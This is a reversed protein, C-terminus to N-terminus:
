QLVMGNTPSDIVITLAGLTPDNPNAWQYDWIGNYNQGVSVQFFGAPWLGGDVWLNTQGPDGVGIMQWPYLPDNVAPVWWLEYRAGADANTTVSVQYQSGGMPAITLVPQSQALVTLVSVAVALGAALGWMVNRQFHKNM